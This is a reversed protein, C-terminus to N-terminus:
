RSSRGIIEGDRCFLIFPEQLSCCLNIKGRM